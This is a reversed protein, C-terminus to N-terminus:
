LQDVSLKITGYKWAKELERRIWFADTKRDQAELSTLLGFLSRGNRPHKDLDDRFVKEAEKMQNNQLYIGGLSERIPFFWDPPENYHLTDQVAVAQELNQIATQPDHEAEAIKAKLTLDAIELIPKAKNYGYKADPSIQKKGELFIRQEERASNLDGKEAFAVGRAFHFLVNTTKMGEPFAQMALVDEWQQFRVLVFLATPAYYELDPMGKFHPAYFSYLEKGVEYARQYNGEMSYSRSLFYLNHTLYHVPYIGDMGFKKIYDNDVAVAQENCVVAKHYDGVLLYIHGPMHLIHGSSPLLYRLRHASMLAKEPNKSAELIHVYYHNAGLHEPDRKLVSELTEVLPLTGEMPNGKIDWQDWPHLNLGSEVFLTAADLDDPFQKVVEKMAEHYANEKTPKVSNKDNSYRKSLAKIYAKENETASDSLKLAEQILHYAKEERQETIDMNINSGLALSMGWYAMALKNDLESAKKFSWFAADHNFAYLLTFGQDFYDQAEPNTTSVPHHVRGKAVFLSFNKPPDYPFEHALLRASVLLMVLLYKIYFNAM